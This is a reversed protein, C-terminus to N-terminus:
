ITSGYELHSGPATAVPATMRAHESQRDVM